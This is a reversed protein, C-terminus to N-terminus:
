VSLDDVLVLKLVRMIAAVGYFSLILYFPLTLRKNLRYFIFSILLITAISFITNMVVDSNQLFGGM